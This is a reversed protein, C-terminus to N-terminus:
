EHYTADITKIIDDIRAACVDYRHIIETPFFTLKSSMIKAQDLKMSESIVLTNQNPDIRGHEEIFIILRDKQANYLQTTNLLSPILEQYLDLIDNQLKKDEINGLKGSSKFGEFRGNNQVLGVNNFIANAYKALSDATGPTNTNMSGFFHFAAQQYRYGRKDSQMETLDSNLDSKLGLLFERVEKQEHRHEALDHFWITISVAFVIIFIELLFEKIKEILPNDSRFISYAKKTHKIVELEAM